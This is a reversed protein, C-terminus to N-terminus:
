NLWVKITKNNIKFFFTLLSSCYLNWIYYYWKTWLKNYKNQKLLLRNLQQFNWNFNYGLLSRASLLSVHVYATDGWAYCLRAVPTRALLSRLRAVVVATGFCCHMSCCGVFCYCTLSSIASADSSYHQCRGFSLVRRASWM